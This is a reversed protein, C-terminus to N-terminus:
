APRLLDGAMEEASPVVGRLQLSLGVVQLEDPEETPDPQLPEASLSHLLALFLMLIWSM